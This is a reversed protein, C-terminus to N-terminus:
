LKPSGDPRLDRDRSTTMVLHTNVSVTDASDRQRRYRDRMEPYTAALVTFAGLLIDSDPVAPYVARWVAAAVKERPLLGDAFLYNHVMGLLSPFASPVSGQLMPVSKEPDYLVDLLPALRAEFAAPMEPFPIEANRQLNAIRQDSLAAIGRLLLAALRTDVWLPDEWLLRYIGWACDRCNDRSLGGFLWDPSDPDPFLLSQDATDQIMQFLPVEARAIDRAEPPISALFAREKEAGQAQWYASIVASATQGDRPLLFGCRELTKLIAGYIEAERDAAEMELDYPIYEALYTDLYYTCIPNMMRLLILGRRTTLGEEEERRIMERLTKEVASAPQLLQEHTVFVLHDIHHVFRKLLRQLAEKDSDEEDEDAKDDEADLDETDEERYLPMDEEEAEDLLAQVQEWLALDRQLADPRTDEQGDRSDQTIYESTMEGVIRLFAWDPLALLLVLSLYEMDQQYILNSEQSFPVTLTDLLRHAYLKQLLVRPSELEFVMKVLGREEVINEIIAAAAQRVVGTLAAGTIPSAGFWYSFTDSVALDMQAARFAQQYAPLGATCRNHIRYIQELLVDPSVEQYDPHDQYSAQLLRQARARYPEHPRIPHFVIPEM